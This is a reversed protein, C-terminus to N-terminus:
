QPSGGQEDYRERESFLCGCYKQLYLNMEKARKHSERFGERFDKFLFSVGAEGQRDASLNASKEGIEKIAKLSQYPSITLTTSFVDFGEKQAKKATERLRLDYCLLCRESEHFAVKRFYEELEYDGIILPINH